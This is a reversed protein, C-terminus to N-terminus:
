CMFNLIYLYFLSFTFITNTNQHKHFLFFLFALNILMKISNKLFSFLLFIPIKNTKNRHIEKDKKVENRKWHFSSKEITASLFFSHYLM